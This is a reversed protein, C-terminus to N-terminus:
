SEWQELLLGGNQEFVVFLILRKWFYITLTTTTATATATATAAAAAAAAVAAQDSLLLQLGNHLWKESFM